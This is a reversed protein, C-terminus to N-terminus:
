KLMEEYPILRQPNIYGSFSPSISSFDSNELPKQQINSSKEKLKEKLPIFNKANINLQPKSHIENEDSVVENKNQASSLDTQISILKSILETSM